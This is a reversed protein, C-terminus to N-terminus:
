EASLWILALLIFCVCIWVVIDLWKPRNKWWGFCKIAWMIQGIIMILWLIVM